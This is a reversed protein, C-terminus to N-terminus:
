FYDLLVPPPGALAADLGTLPGDLLGLQRVRATDAVGALLLALGRVHLAPATGSGSTLHGRGSRVSLSWTSDGRDPDVLRFRVDVDAAWGRGAVTAAPDVVRLMWPQRQVPPPVTSPLLWGLEETPGRWRTSPAVPHWRGLSALLARSAAASTSVLEHVVLESGERYGRGRDYALYGLPTGDATEALAVVDAEFAEAPGDPFARGTRSLAGNGAAAWRDYLEQLVPGEDPEATRVVADSPGADGLARTTLRTEDLSGVVEWGLGRYLGVVTPYLASLAQGRDAMVDLLTRVLTSAAGRGRADPHVAVGAVGGTPVRRGGWWQELDLLAAKGLLRGRGDLVGWTDFRPPHAPAPPLTAQPDGGFALRSLRWAQERHEETLPVVEFPTM